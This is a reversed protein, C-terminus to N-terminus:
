DFVAWSGDEDWFIAIESVIDPNDPDLNLQIRDGKEFEIVFIMMLSIFM